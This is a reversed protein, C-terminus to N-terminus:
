VSGLRYRRGPGAGADDAPEVAVDLGEPADVVEFRVAEGGRVSLVAEARGGGPPRSTIRLRRPTAVIPGEREGTVPVRLEPKRPHDTTVVLEERFPGVQAPSRFTVEVVYGGAAGGEPSGEPSAPRFSAELLEPRSSRVGLVRFDPRDHSTLTLSVRKTEGEALAPFRFAGAAPVTSIAALAEGHVRFTVEPRDPDTTTIRAQSKFPGPHRPTWRLTLRTSEGPKLVAEARPAAGEGFGAV